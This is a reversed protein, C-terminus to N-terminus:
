VNEEELLGVEIDEGWLWQLLAPQSSLMQKRAQARDAPSAM